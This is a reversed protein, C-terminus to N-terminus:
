LTKTLSMRWGCGSKQNALGLTWSLRHRMHCEAQLGLVSELVESEDVDSHLMLMFKM